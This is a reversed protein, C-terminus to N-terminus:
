RRGCGALFGALVASVATPRELTCTHGCRRLVELRAGAVGEVIREACAPPTATDEEGVVVLTPAAVAGLEATVAVRDTVGLVARRIGARDARALRQRWQAVVARAEPEALFSRGFLHAAVRDAIPGMGVYRQVRALARYEGTRAPDEADASSDLLVLSRLLEPHRAALRLGVFGGMSLGVWHVPGTDLARVLAVADATLTDMDYGVPTAATDGQGRWDLTVCRYRTRLEGIQHRFMWGGFLLGHGFVVTQAHPRGAPAGTDTWAIRAAGHTLIPM